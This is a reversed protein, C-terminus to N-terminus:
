INSRMSRWNAVWKPPSWQAWPCSRSRRLHLAELVGQYKATSLDFNMDILGWCGWPGPQGAYNFYCFLEGGTAFWDDLLYHRM